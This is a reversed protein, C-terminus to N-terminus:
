VRSQSQFVHGFDKCLLQAARRGSTLAGPLGGPFDTRFGAFYVGRIDKLTCPYKLMKSGVTFKGMWSGRYSGTYREYTLPTAIDIVDITGKVCPLASGLAAELARALKNKEDEYAGNNRARLWFDYTDTFGLIVTLAAGGQPAYGAYGGYNNIVMDAIREGGVDLPTELKVAISHPLASLDAKVGIGAFTCNCVETNTKLENIWRDAPFRDFLRSSATITDGAIIVGDADIREGGAQVGKAAGGDMLVKEVEVGLRLTGGLSAFTEAMRATLPLSGGEPYGGDGAAKIALTFLVPMAPLYPPASQALLYKIGTHKFMSLYDAFPIKLQKYMRFLGPMMSFVASLPMNPAPYTLKVGKVNQEPEKLAAYTDIDACLRDIAKKDEPSVMLFHERLRERDRYLFLDTGEYNTYLYPDNLYIPVAESLAGTERWYKNIISQPSTGAMWHVAGEFLCGKRRWGTCVGGPIAGKELITVTFGSRAAYIGASLGAIGAGVVVVNKNM